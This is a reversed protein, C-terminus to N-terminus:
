VGRDIDRHYIHVAFKRNRLYQAMSEAVCVSRHRGGTCGVALTLYSKGESVYNPLLFDVLKSFRIFFEHYAVQRRVYRKVAADQGTKSRLSPVYNPNPLFRVDMVLDADLPIGYKYGFSLLSITMKKVPSVEMERALIEKLEGVTLYSTDVEKDALALVKAMLRREKQIGELVRKGLPHRRRTESFRHLLTSDNATFFISRYPIKKKRIEALVKDLSSISEGARIDIGLAVNKLKGGIELCLDAFKPVLALPLNDVCFFGMDELSKLAQSKGAGSLGTIIYFKSKM